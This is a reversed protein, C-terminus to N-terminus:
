FYCDLMRQNLFIRFDLDSERAFRIFCHKDERLLGHDFVNIHM